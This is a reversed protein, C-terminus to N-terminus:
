DTFLVSMSHNNKSATVVLTNTTGASDIPDYIGDGDSDNLNGGADRFDQFKGSITVENQEFNTLNNYFNQLDLTGNKLQNRYDSTLDALVESIQFSENIINVSESSRTLATGFFPIFMAAAIAGIVIIAIIEILSFGDETRIIM